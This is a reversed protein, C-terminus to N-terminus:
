ARARPAGCRIAPTLEPRPVPAADAQAMGTGFSAYLGTSKPDIYKGDATKLLNFGSPKGAGNIRYVKIRRGRVSQFDNMQLIDCALARDQTLLAVSADRNELLRSLFAQDAFPRRQAHDESAQYVILRNEQAMGEMYSLARTAVPGLTEDPLKSQLELVTEETTWVTSNTAKQAEELNAFFMKQRDEPDLLWVCTDIGVHHTSLLSQFFKNESAQNTISNEVTNKM